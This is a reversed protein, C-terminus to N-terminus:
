GSPADFIRNLILRKVAELWFVSQEPNMETDYVVDSETVTIVIQQPETKTDETM